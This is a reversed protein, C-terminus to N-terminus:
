APNARIVISYNTGGSSFSNILAVTGRAGIPIPRTSSAVNLGLDPDPEDCGVTPPIMGDRLCLLAAVASAAGTGGFEGLAGKLSVVPVGSRGFVDLLANAEVRDLQTANASAFVVAVDTESVRSARLAERMCSTLQASTTPWQNLAGTSSSSGIGLVEGYWESGRSTASTLRELVLLYGGEGLVFGNRRRDFPRSAEEGGDMPSMVGFRDLVSYYVEEVEDGGGTVIANAHRHKLLRYAASVAALSSAEKNTVTINPGRLGFEIGCLSAAANGVTSSFLFPSAGVPGHAMLSDLYEVTSRMGVTSSGLAVGIQERGVEALHTLRADDLALRCASLVLRGIHDVRRLRAPDIFAAADFNQLVGARHSHYHTTDFTSIPAIGSCGSLLGSKFQETGTGLSGICGLGTVVIRQTM